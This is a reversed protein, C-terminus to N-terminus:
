CGTQRQPVKVHEGFFHGKGALRMPLHLDPTGSRTCTLFTQGLITPDGFRLQRLFSLRFPGPPKDETRIRQM